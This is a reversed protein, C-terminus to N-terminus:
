CCRDPRPPRWLWSWRGIRREVPPLQPGVRVPFSKAGIHDLLDSSSGAFGVRDHVPDVQRQHQVFGVAFFHGGDLAQLFEPVLAGHSLGQFIHLRQDPRPDIHEIHIQATVVVPPQGMGRPGHSGATKEIHSMQHFFVKGGGADLGVGPFLHRHHRHTFQTVGIQGFLGQPILLAVHDHQATGEQRVGLPGPFGIRAPHFINNGADAALFSAQVFEDLATDPEQALRGAFDENGPLALTLRQM